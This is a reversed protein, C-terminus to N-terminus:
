EDDGGLSLHKRDFVFFRPSGGEPMRHQQTDRTRNGDRVTLIIGLDRWMVRVAELEYGEAALIVRLQPPLIAVAEGGEVDVMRGIWGLTTLPATTRGARRIVGTHAALYGRVAELAM